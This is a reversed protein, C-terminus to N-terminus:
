MNQVVSCHVLSEYRVSEYAMSLVVYLARTCVMGRKQLLVRVRRERVFECVMGRSTLSSRYLARTGFLLGM